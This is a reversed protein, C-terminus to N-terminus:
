CGLLGDTNNSVGDMMDAREGEKWRGSDSKFVAKVVNEVTKVASSAGREIGTVCRWSPVKSMLEKEGYLLARTVVV